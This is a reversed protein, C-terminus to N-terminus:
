ITSSYHKNQNFTYYEDFLTAINRLFPKGKETVLMHNNKIVLIGDNIFNQMLNVNLEIQEYQNKHVTGNCMISAIIKARLQDSDNLLHGKEIGLERNELFSRYQKINKFNQIYCSSTSSISSLGLGILINSKKDTYGMFNRHLQGSQYATYLYSDQRAFHDLGLEFFNNSSLFKKGYEYLKRKEKGQPLEENKILKQNVLVEPLHAYSYFAILDPNLKTVYSITQEITKTTQKPLGYILDFNISEFGLNRIKNVLGEVMEFSQYRNIATQVTHDFDQIGLSIRKFQNKKLVKLHEDLCTRPDIEIAGIFDNKLYPTFISLLSELDEPILFTPTGGGIHISNIEINLENLYELYLSWEKKLLHIYDTGKSKNKTISRNCGCYWCLKECFPIHLYIDIGQEASYETKINKLWKRITPTNHWNTVTPYSTYRPANINYKKILATM